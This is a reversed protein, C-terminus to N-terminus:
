SETPPHIEGVLVPNGTWDLPADVVKVVCQLRFMAHMIQNRFFCIADGRVDMSHAEVIEGKETDFSQMLGGNVINTVEQKTVVLFKRMLREM